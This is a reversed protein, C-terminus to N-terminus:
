KYKRAAKLSFVVVTTKPPANTQYPMIFKYEVLRRELAEVMDVVVEDGAICFTMCLDNPESNEAEFLVCVNQTCCEKVVTEVEKNSYRKM